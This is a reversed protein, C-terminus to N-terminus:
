DFINDPLDDYNPLEEGVGTLDGSDCVEEMTDIAWAMMTGKTWLDEPRRRNRRLLRLEEKDRPLRTVDKRPPM